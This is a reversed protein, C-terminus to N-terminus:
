LRPFAAPSMKNQRPPPWKGKAEAHNLPGQNLAQHPRIARHVHPLDTRRDFSEFPRLTTGVVMALDASTWRM